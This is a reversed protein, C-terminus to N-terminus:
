LGDRAYRSLKGVAEVLRAVRSAAAAMDEAISLHARSIRVDATDGRLVGSLEVLADCEWDIQEELAMVSASVRTARQQESDGSTAFVKPAAVIAPSDHRASSVAATKTVTAPFAFTEPHDEVETNAASELAAAMRAVEADSPPMVDFRMSTLRVVASPDIGPIVHPQRLDRSALAHHAQTQPTISSTAAQAARPAARSAAFEKIQADSMTSWLVPAPTISAAFLAAAATHPRPLGSPTLPQDRQRVTTLKDSEGDVRSEQQLKRARPGGVADADIGNRVIDLTEAWQDDPASASDLPRTLSTQAELTAQTRAERPGSLKSAAAAAAASRARHRALLAEQLRAAEAEAVAESAYDDDGHHVRSEDLSDDVVQTVPAFVAASSSTPMADISRGDM